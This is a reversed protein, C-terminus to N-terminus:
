RLQWRRQLALASPKREPLVEIVKRGGDKTIQVIEHGQLVTVPHGSALAREFADRIALAALEPIRAEELDLEEDTLPM